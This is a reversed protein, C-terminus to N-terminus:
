ICKKPFFIYKGHKDRRVFRHFLLNPMNEENKLDFDVRLMIALKVKLKLCFVAVFMGGILDLM